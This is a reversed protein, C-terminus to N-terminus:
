LNQFLLNWFYLNLFIKLFEFFLFNAFVKYQKDLHKINERFQRKLMSDKDKIDKPAQKQAHSHRRRFWFSLMMFIINLMVWKLDQERSRMHEKQAEIEMNHQIHQHSLRM